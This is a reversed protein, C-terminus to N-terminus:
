PFVARIRVGSGDAILLGGSPGVAIAQPDDLWALTAPGGDGLGAHGHRRGAIIAVQGATVRQGYFTGPRIAILRVVASVPDLALINGHGDITVDHSGPFQGAITYIYGTKMPMGYFRGTHAAVVRVRYDGALVLNGASDVAVAWPTMAATIAPVDSAVRSALIGAGRGSGAVTYIHGARMRQGFCTCSRAPVMRIWGGASSPRSFSPNDVIFLGGHGDTAVRVPSLGARLAPRGDGSRAAKGDGAVPYVRGARMRRGYFRGPRPPAALVQNRAQQAILVNGSADAAVAGACGGTGCGAVPLRYLYGATMPVGFYTGTRAPVYAPSGNALGIILDGSGDEAVGVPDDPLPASTAPGSRQYGHAGAITYIHGAIMHVGYFTGTRAALARYTGTGSDAFALNGAGDVAVYEIRTVVHFRSPSHPSFGGLDAVTYIDGARMRQGYFVGDRAAVARLRNGDGFVVNGAADTAVGHATVSVESGPVGSAASLRGGGAVAYIHGARMRQGYFVGDRAAVVRVESPFGRLVGGTDAILVNGAADLAIQSPYGIVARPGPGGNGEEEPWRRLDPSGAVTYLRGALMRQGYFTGSSEALVQVLGPTDAPCADGQCAGQGSVTVLNGWWDARVDVPDFGAHPITYIHGALMPQGYFTGTRAAVVRVTGGVAILLDGALDAAPAITCLGDSGSTDNLEAQVALGGNGWDGVVGDGAVTTLRGSRMGIRRVAAGLDDGVYLAGRAYSVPCTDLPVGNAPGPGGVGGAVTTITGPAAAGHRPARPSHAARGSASVWVASTAVVALGALALLGAVRGREVLWSM